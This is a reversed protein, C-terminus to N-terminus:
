IVKGEEILASIFKDWNAKRKEANEKRYQEAASKSVGLYETIPYGDLLYFRTDEIVLVLDNYAFSSYPPQMPISEFLSFDDIHFTVTSFLGIRSEFSEKGSLLELFIEGSQFVIERTERNFSEIDEHIYVSFDAKGEENEKDSCALLTWFLLFIAIVHKIKSSM